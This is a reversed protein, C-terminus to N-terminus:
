RAKKTKPGGARAKASTKAKAKEAAKREKRAENAALVEASKAGSGAGTKVGADSKATATMPTTGDEAPKTKLKARGKTRKEPKALPTVQDEAKAPTAPKHQALVIIEGTSPEIMEIMTPTEEDAIM